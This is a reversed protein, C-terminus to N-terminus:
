IRASRQRPAEGNGGGELVGKDNLSLNPFTMVMEEYDEWTVEEASLGQWHM